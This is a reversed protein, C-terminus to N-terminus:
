IGGRQSYRFPVLVSGGMRSQHCSWEVRDNWIGPVSEGSAVSIVRSCGELVECGSLNVGPVRNSLSGVCATTVSANRM